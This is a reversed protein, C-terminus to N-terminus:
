GFLTYASEWEQPLSAQEEDGYISVALVASYSSTKLTNIGTTCSGSVAGSPGIVFLESADRSVPARALEFLEDM